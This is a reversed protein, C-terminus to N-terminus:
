LVFGPTFERLKQHKSTKLHRSKLGKPAIFPLALDRPYSKLKPLAM